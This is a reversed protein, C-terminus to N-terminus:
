VSSITIAGITVNKLSHTTTKDIFSQNDLLCFVLHNQFFFFDKCYLILHGKLLHKPIFRLTVGSFHCSNISMKKQKNSELILLFYKMYHM